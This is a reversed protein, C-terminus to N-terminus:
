LSLNGIDDMTFNCSTYPTSLFITPTRQCRTMFTAEGRGILCIKLSAMIEALLAGVLHSEFPLVVGAPHIRLLTVIQALLINTAFTVGPLHAELPLLVRTLDIGLLAVIVALPYKTTFAVGPLHAEFLPVVRGQHIWFLAV